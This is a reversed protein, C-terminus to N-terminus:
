RLATLASLPKCTSEDSLGWHGFHKARRVKNGAGIVYNYQVMITQQQVIKAKADAATALGKYFRGNPFLEIPLLAPTFGAFRESVLRQFMYQETEHHRTGEYHLSELVSDKVMSAWEEFLLKTHKTPLSLFLGGGVGLWNPDDQEYVDVYLLMDFPVGQTSISGGTVGKLEELHLKGGSALVRDLYVYASSQWWADTEFLLYPVNVDVLDKLILQRALMFVHYAQTGYKLDNELSAGRAKMGLELRLAQIRATMDVGLVAGLRRTVGHQRLADLCGQDTCLVVTRELVGTLGRVQCLWHLTMEIFGTNAIVLGTFPVQQQQMISHMSAALQATGSHAPQYAGAEGMPAASVDLVQLQALHNLEPRWQRLLEATNSGQPRALSLKAGLNLHRVRWASRRCEQAIFEDGSASSARFGAQLVKWVGAKVVMAESSPLCSLVHLADLPPVCAGAAGRVGVEDFCPKADSIMLPIGKISALAVIGTQQERAAVGGAWRLALPSLQMGADVFFILDGEAPVDGSSPFGCNLPHLGHDHAGQPLKVSHVAASTLAPVRRQVNAIDLPPVGAAACITHVVPSTWTRLHQISRALLVVHTRATCQQEPTTESWSGGGEGIPSDFPAIIGTQRMIHHPHRADDLLQSSSVRPVYLAAIRPWLQLPTWLAFMTALAVMGAFHSLYRLRAGGKTAFCQYSTQLVKRCDLKSAPWCICANCHAEEAGPDQGHNNTCPVGKQLSSVM